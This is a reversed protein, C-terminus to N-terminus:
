TVGEIEGRLIDFHYDWMLEGWNGERRAADLDWGIFLSGARQVVIIDLGVACGDVAVARGNVTLNACCSYDDLFLSGTCM